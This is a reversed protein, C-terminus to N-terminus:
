AAEELIWRSQELMRHFDPMDFDGVSQINALGEEETLCEMLVLADVTRMAAQKGKDDNRIIALLGLRRWSGERVVLRM